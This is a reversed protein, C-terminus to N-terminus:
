REFEIEQLEFIKIIKYIDVGFNYNYVEIMGDKFLELVCDCLKVYHGYNIYDIYDDENVNNQLLEFFDIEKSEIGLFDCLKQTPIIIPNETIETFKMNKNILGSMGNM